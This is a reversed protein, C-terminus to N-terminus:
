ELPRVQEVESEMGRKEEVAATEGHPAQPGQFLDIARELGLRFIWVRLLRRDNRYREGVRREEGRDEKARRRKVLLPGAVERVREVLGERVWDEDVTLRQREDDWHLALAFALEPQTCADLFPPYLTSSFHSLQLLLSHLLSLFPPSFPFSTKLAQHLSPLTFSFLDTLTSTNLDALFPLFAPTSTPTLLDRTRAKLIQRFLLRDKWISERLPLPLSSSSPASEWERGDTDVDSCESILSSLSLPLSAMSCCSCGVESLAAMLVSDEVWEDTFQAFEM